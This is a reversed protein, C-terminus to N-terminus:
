RWKEGLAKPSKKSRKQLRYCPPYIHLFHSAAAIHSSRRPATCRVNVSPHQKLDKRADPIIGLFVCAKPTPLSVYKCAINLSKRATSTLM